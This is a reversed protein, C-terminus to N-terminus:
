DVLLPCAHTLLSRDLGGGGCALGTTQSVGMKLRPAAPGEHGEDDESCRKTKKKAEEESNAEDTRSGQSERQQLRGPPSKKGGPSASRWM